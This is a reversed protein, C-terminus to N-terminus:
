HRSEVHSEKENFGSSEDPAFPNVRRLYGQQELAVLLKAKAKEINQEHHDFTVSELDAITLM